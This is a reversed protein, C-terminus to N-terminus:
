IAGDTRNVAPARVVNVLGAIGIEKVAVSSDSAALVFREILVLPPVKVRAGSSATVPLRRVIVTFAPMPEMMSAEIPVALLPSNAEM